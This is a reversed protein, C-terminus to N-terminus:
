GLRREHTRLRHCCACVVDCKDAEAVIQEVSHSAVTAGINFAKHHGPRHDFDMAVPPWQVGCDACPRMKLAFVVARREVLIRRMYKRGARRHLEPRLQRRRRQAERARIPDSYPM